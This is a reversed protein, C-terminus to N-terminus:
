FFRRQLHEGLLAQARRVAPVTGGFAGARLLPWNPGLAEVEAAIREALSTRRNYVFWAFEGLSTVRGGSLHVELLSRLYEYREFAEAFEDNDLIGAFAPRLTARLHISLGDRSGTWGPMARVVDPDVVRHPALARWAPQLDRATQVPQALLPFLLGELGGAATAVGVAYTLRLAPYWALREWVEAGARLGGPLATRQVRQLPRTWLRPQGPDGFTGASRWCRPSRPPSRTTGPWDPTRAAPCAV